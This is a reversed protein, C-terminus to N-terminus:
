SMWRPLLNAGILMAIIGVVYAGLVRRGVQANGLSWALGVKVLTNSSIAIGL